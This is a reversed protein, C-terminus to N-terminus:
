TLSPCLPVTDRRGGTACCGGYPGGATHEDAAGRYRCMTPKSPLSLSCTILRNADSDRLREVLIVAIFANFRLQPDALFGLYTHLDRASPIPAAGPHTHWEGIWEGGDRAFADAALQQAHRLDRLFFTPRHVAAPGPDGASRVWAPTDDAHSLLLGGTENGDASRQAEDRITTAARPALVVREM